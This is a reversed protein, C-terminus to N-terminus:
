WLQKNTSPHLVIEVRDVPQPIWGNRGADSEVSSGIGVVLGDDRDGGSWSQNMGDDEDHRRDDEARGSKNANRSTVSTPLAPAKSTRRRDAQGASAPRQRREATTKAMASASLAAHQRHQRFHQADAPSGAGATVFVGGKGEGVVDQRRHQLQRRESGSSSHNNKASSSRALNREVDMQTRRTVGKRGVRGVHAFRQQQVRAAEVALPLIDDVALLADVRPRSFLSLPSASSSVQQRCASRSSELVAFINNGKGGLGRHVLFGSTSSSDSHQQQQQHHHQQDHHHHHHRQQQPLAVAERGNKDGTEVARSGRVANADRECSGDDDDDDDDDFEQQQAPDDAGGIEIKRRELNDVRKSAGRRSAETKSRCSRGAKTPMTNPSAAGGENGGRGSERVVPRRDNNNNNTITRKGNTEAHFRSCTAASSVGNKPFETWRWAKGARQFCPAAAATAAAAAAAAVSRTTAAKPTPARATPTTDEGAGLEGRVACVSCKVQTSVNRMREMRRKEKDAADKFSAQVAALLVQQREQRLEERHAMLAAVRGELRQCYARANGERVHSAHLHDDAKLAEEEAKLNELELKREADKKFTEFEVGAGKHKREIALVLAETDGLDSGKLGTQVGVGRTRPRRRLEEAESRLSDIARATRVREAERTELRAQAGRRSAATLQIRLGLVGVRAEGIRGILMDAARQASDAVAAATDNSSKRNSNSDASEGRTRTNRAEDAKVVTAAAAAVAAAADGVPGTVVAGTCDEGGVDDDVVEVGAGGTIAGFLRDVALRLGDMASAFGDARRVGRSVERCLEREVVDRLAEAERARKRWARVVSRSAAAGGEGAGGDEGSRMPVPMPNEKREAKTPANPMGSSSKRKEEPIGRVVSDAEAKAVAPTVPAATAPAPAATAATAAIAALNRESALRLGWKIGFGCAKAALRVKGLGSRGGDVVGGGHITGDDVLSARQAADDEEPTTQTSRTEKAVVNETM